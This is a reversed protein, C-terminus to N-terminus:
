GGLTATPTLRLMKSVQLPKVDLIIAAKTISLADSEVMRSTLRLLAHGVRHRRVVYYNPGSDSERALARQRDRKHLWRERFIERLADFAQQHIRNTRLLQYAVMTHSLNRPRVFESIYRQQETIDHSIEIQSLLRTPLMWEAAVRNCFDEIVRGPHAGSLGTDGLLLHVIEHLLTFSWAPVSDNDNIVVFPAVDDAIAFGRFVDVEIDSLYSGLDGKLIVFVGSAEAQSRLLAFADGPSPQAYYLNATLDYGLVQRLSETGESVTIRRVTEGSHNRNLSGVFPLSVAEDEAELMARVMHQRSRVNRVLADVLAETEALRSAPLMRFDAGRDGRPPPENLYFALLPRRYHQAMRVLVPRTPATEGRELAALRDIAAEGRADKIGIKAVADQPSLGATERAWLLIKPNVAPM